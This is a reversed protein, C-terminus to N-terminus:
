TRPTLDKGVPEADVVRQKPVLVDSPHVAGRAEAMRGYEEALELVAKRALRLTGEINRLDQPPIYREERALANGMERTAHIGVRLGKALEELHAAMKRLDAV